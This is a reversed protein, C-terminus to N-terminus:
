RTGQKRSAIVQAPPPLQELRQRHAANTAQMRKIMDDYQAIGADNRTKLSQEYEGPAFISGHEWISSPNLNIRAGGTFQSRTNSNGFLGLFQDMLSNAPPPTAANSPSLEGQSAITRNPVPTSPPQPAEVPGTPFPTPEKDMLSYPARQQFPMNRMAEEEEQRQRQLEAEQRAELALARDRRDVAGSM